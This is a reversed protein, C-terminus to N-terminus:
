KAWKWVSSLSYCVARILLPHLRHIWVLVRENTFHHSGLRRSGSEQKQDWVSRGSLAAATRSKRCVLSGTLDATDERASSLLCSTSTTTQTWVKLFGSTSSAHEVTQKYKQEATLGKFAAWHTVPVCVCIPNGFANIKKPFSSLNRDLHCGHQTDPQKPCVPLLNGKLCLVSVLVNHSKFKLCQLIKHKTQIPSSFSWLFFTILHKSPNQGQSRKIHDSASHIVATWCAWCYRINGQLLFIELIFVALCFSLNLM